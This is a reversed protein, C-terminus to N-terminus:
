CDRLATLATEYRRIWEAERAKVDAALRAVPDLQYRDWIEWAERLHEGPWGQAEWLVLRHTDQATEMYAIAETRLVTCDQDASTPQVSLALALLLGVALPRM